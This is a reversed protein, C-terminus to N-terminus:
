FFSIFKILFCFHYPMMIKNLWSLINKIRNKLSTLLKFGTLFYVPRVRLKSWSLSSKIIGYYCNSVVVRDSPYLLHNRWRLSSSSSTRHGSIVPEAQILNSKFKLSIAKRHWLHFLANGLGTPFCTPSTSKPIRTVHLVATGISDWNVQTRLLLTCVQTILCPSQCMLSFRGMIWHIMWLSLSLHFILSLLKLLLGNM